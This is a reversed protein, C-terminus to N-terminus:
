ILVVGWSYLTLTENLGCSLRLQINEGNEVAGNRRFVVEQITNGKGDEVTRSWWLPVAKGGALLYPAACNATFQYSAVAVLGQNEEPNQFTCSAIGTEGTAACSFVLSTFHGSVTGSITNTLRPALTIQYKHGCFVLLNEEITHFIYGNPGPLSLSFSTTLLTQNETLDTYTLVCPLSFTSNRIEDFQVRLTFAKILGNTPATFTAILPQPEALHVVTMESQEMMALLQDSNKSPTYNMQYYDNHKVLGSLGTGALSTDLHFVGIQRPFPTLTQAFCYHNYALRCAQDFAKSEASQVAKAVEATIKETAATSGTVSQSLGKEIDMCMQNFDTRLIRDTEDWQPLHYKETYNM